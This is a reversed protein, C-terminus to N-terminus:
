WRRDSSIVLREFFEHATEHAVKLISERLIEARWSWANYHPRQVSPANNFAIESIRAVNRWGTGGRSLRVEINIDNDPSIGVASQFEELSKRADALSLRLGGLTFRLQRLETLWAALQQHDSACEGECQEAMEEAHLVAEDLTLPETELVNGEADFVRTRGDACREVVRDTKTAITTLEAM